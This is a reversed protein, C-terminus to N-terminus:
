KKQMADIQAELQPTLWMDQTIQFQSHDSFAKKVTMYDKTIYTKLLAVFNGGTESVSLDPSSLGADKLAKDLEQRFAQADNGTGKFIILHPRSSPMELYKDAHVPKKGTLDEYIEYVAIDSGEALRQDLIEVVRARNTSLSEVIRDYLMQERNAAAIDILLNIIDDSKDKIHSLGHYVASYRVDSSPDRALQVLLEVAETDPNEKRQVYYTGLVRAATIRVPLVQSQACAKFGPMFSDDMEGEYKDQSLLSLSLLKLDPSGTVLMDQITVPKPESSVTNTTAENAAQDPATNTPTQAMLTAPILAAIVFIPTWNM